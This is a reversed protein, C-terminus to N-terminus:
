GSRRLLARLAAKAEDQLEPLADWGFWRAEVVEASRAAAPGTGDALRARFVVDVRRHRPDVVTTPEGVLEVRVGVEEWVERCVADEPAEGRRLLGGPLGWRPRYSQRILLLRGGDDIVAVAGVTFTPAVRMTLWRRGGRPVLGFLRLLGRHIRWRM